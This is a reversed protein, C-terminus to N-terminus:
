SVSYALLVPWLLANVPVKGDEIDPDKVGGARVSPMGVSKCRGCGTVLASFTTGYGGLRRAAIADTGELCFTSDM